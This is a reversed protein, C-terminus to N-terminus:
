WNKPDIVVRGSESVGYQTVVKTADPKVVTQMVQFGDRGPRILHVMVKGGQGSIIQIEEKKTARGVASKVAAGQAESLGM